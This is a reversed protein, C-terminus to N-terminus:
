TEIALSCYYDFKAERKAATEAKARLLMNMMGDDYLDRTPMQMNREYGYVQAHGKIFLICFLVMLILRKKM